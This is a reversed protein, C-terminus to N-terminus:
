NAIVEVFFTRIQLATLTVTSDQLPVSRRGELGDETKWVFRHVDSKLQNGTLSLETVSKVDLTAFLSPIDITVPQSLSPDENIGFQHSLRLLIGTSNWRRMTVLGANVPLDSRIWSSNTLYTTMWDQPSGSIPAFFPIPSYYIQDQLPRVAAQAKSAQDLRVYHTGRIVLGKGIRHFNPYPTCSQTENLPEAVGRNDDALLRRHVMVELEGSQMSGGGQSRDTLVTFQASTDKLGILANIPYYNGAVIASGTLNQAPGRRTRQQLERGNSDTFFSSGSDLSTSYRSIVEKGMGDAFPIPGVMFESEIHDANAFLRTVQVLWPAWTQTIETVIPGKTISIEVNGTNVPFPTTTNPRFIYAGSNQRHETDGYHDSNSSSNYWLWDHSVNAFVGTKINSMSVLRGNAGYALTLVGNSVSQGSASVEAEMRAASVRAAESEVSSSKSTSVAYTNYGVGPLSVEFSVSASAAGTVAPFTNKVIQVPVNVGTSDMVTVSTVGEAVPIRVVRSNARPLPNYFVVSFDSSSQAVTCISVNLQHCQSLTPASVGIQRDVLSDALLKTVFPEAAAIGKALRKAYDYTVHQKATGSVADHHQAVGVAQDLASFYSNSSFPGLASEIQRYAQLAQSSTRVYGKLAPRSTFYGTWYSYDDNAYPFLDGTRVGWTLNAKNVAETYLNPNSYFANIKGGANVAKILRDLNIFWNHAAQYQFDSGMKFMIHNSAAQHSYFTYSTNVFQNVRAAVNDDELSTDTRMPEDSCGIDFCFGSPPGYNGSQFAGTFVEAAAGLSESARWVFELKRDNFRQDHEQYDMRGFYLANFGAEASLLAAQTASHGFPDIQWGVTPSYGFEDSLFRHGLCTNDVMARYDTAAEDHMSWGGNVFALQGNAVLKKTLEQNAPSQENWWRQFFAQEVYTFKRDPNASLEAVVSDLIYQVAADQITKNSGYFYEDVTKLWGVDDHTHPVIHVNLVDDRYVPSANTVALVTALLLGVVFM